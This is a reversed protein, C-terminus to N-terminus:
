IYHLQLEFVALVLLLSVLVPPIALCWWGFVSLAWAGCAAGAIFSFLALFAFSFDSSSSSGNINACAAVAAVRNAKLDRVHDHPAPSEHMESEQRASALTARACAATRTMM